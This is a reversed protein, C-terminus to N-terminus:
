SKYLDFRSSIWLDLMYARVFRDAASENGILAERFNNFIYSETFLGLKISSMNKLVSALNAASCRLARIVPEMIEGKSNRTSILKPVGVMSCLEREVRRDLGNRFFENLPLQLIKKIIRHDLLPYLVRMKSSFLAREGAIASLLLYLSRRLKHTPYSGLEKNLLTQMEDDTPILQKIIKPRKKFIKSFIEHSFFIEKTLGRFVTFFSQNSMEAWLYIEHLIRFFSERSEILHLPCDEEAFFLQDGGFGTLIVDIGERHSAKLIQQWVASLILDRHPEPYIFNCCNNGDFSLLDEVDILIKKNQDGILSNLFALENSSASTKYVMSIPVPPERGLMSNALQTAKFILSSDLGGSVLVGVRSADLVYDRIVAFLTDLIKQLNFIKPETESTFLSTVEPCFSLSFSNLSSRYLSGPPIRMVSDVPTQLMIHEGHDLLSKCYNMSLPPKKLETALAIAIPDTSWYLCDEGHRVYFPSCALDPCKITLENSKRDWNLVISKSNKSIFGQRDMRVTAGFTSIASLPAEGYALVEFENTTVHGTPPGYFKRLITKSELSLSKKPRGIFGVYGRFKSIM